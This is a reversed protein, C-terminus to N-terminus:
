EDDGVNLRGAVIHSLRTPLAPATKTRYGELEDVIAALVDTEIVMTRRRTNRAHVIRDKLEDLM